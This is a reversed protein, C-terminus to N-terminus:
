PQNEEATAVPLPDSRSPSQAPRNAATPGAPRTTSTSTHSGGSRTSPGAAPPPRSRDHRQTFESFLDMLPGESNGLITRFSPAIKALLMNRAMAAGDGDFAAVQAALGAAEAANDFKIVEADAEAKALIASAKDKAAELRTQAVKLKQEALTVAVQQEQEAKTTKEVVEQEAEVVRKKQEALVVEVKLKAESLQQLKERRFQALKQKAVERQQVPQTIDDPPQISTIAVALIEIGQKQCNETLSKVLDTQFKERDEGSIFQGGSLKSGGIRCLSRSEPTIIKAIIEEDIADGNADENYKVFMEAVKDPLIRFEVVGDLTIPFGDASLFNMEGDQGLNFRRSRCDVLSVRTEYPNLYYTGPELTRSQVGREGDEVLFVNPDKPLPGALLTVVGRFGAPITVPNHLEISEAYPNYPYRGPKLVERLIGKQGPEALIQGAPLDDGCLAIRIGIKDGPVIFQPGIEWSWFYPNYFYRGETLVGNNPGGSQVGKYYARGDKPPPALEMDPELELGERRILVAQQGTGVDIKCSNYVAVVLGLGLLLLGGLIMVGRPRRPTPLRRGPLAPREEDFAYM